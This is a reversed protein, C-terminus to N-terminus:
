RSGVNARRVIRALVQASYGLYRKGDPLLLSRVHALLADARQGRALAHQAQDHWAASMKRRILREIHKPPQRKLM